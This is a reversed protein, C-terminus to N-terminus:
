QFCSRLGCGWVSFVKVRAKTLSMCVLVHSRSCLGPVAEGVNHQLSHLNAAVSVATGSASMKVSRFFEQKVPFAVCFGCLVWGLCDLLTKYPIFVKEPSKIVQCTKLAHM